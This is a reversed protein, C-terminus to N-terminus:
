LHLRRPARHALKEPPVHQLLTKTETNLWDSM